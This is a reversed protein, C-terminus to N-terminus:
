KQNVVEAEGHENLIKMEMAHKILFDFMKKMMQSSKSNYIEVCFIDENDLGYMSLVDNYIVFEFDMEIESPPIYRVKWLSKPIEVVNTWKPIHKVNRLENITVKNKVFELRVEDGIDFDLYKSMKECVFTRINNKARKQNWIVQKLGKTGSYHLVKSKSLDQNSILSLTQLAQPLSKKADEFEKKKENVLLKLNEISSAEFRRGSDEVITSVLRHKELNELLRYVKNRGMKLDRSLNLATKSGSKLLHLYIQAEDESLGFPKLFEITKNTDQSM